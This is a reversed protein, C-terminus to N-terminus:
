KPFGGHFDSGTLTQLSQINVWHTMLCKQRLTDVLTDREGVNSALFTVKGNGIMNRAKPNKKRTQISVKIIDEITTKADILEIM